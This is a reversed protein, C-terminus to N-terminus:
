FEGWQLSLNISKNPATNDADVIINSDKSGVLYYFGSASTDTDAVTLTVKTKSDGNVVSENALDYGVSDVNAHTDAVTIPATHLASIHGYGDQEISELSQVIEAVNTKGGSSVTKAPKDKKLEPTLTKHGVTVQLHETNGSGEVTPTVVISNNAATVKIGAANNGDSVSMGATTSNSFTITQDDGSPIIDFKVNSTKITGDADEQGNVILLDGIDVHVNQTTVTVNHASPLDFGSSVKFTDGNHYTKTGNDIDSQKITGRYTMADFQQLNQTLKDNIEDITYVPLVATGKEETKSGETIKQKKYHIYQKINDGVQIVPDITTNPDIGSREAGKDHLSINFGAPTAPKSAMSSVYPDEQMIKIGHTTDVVDIGSGKAGYIQVSGKETTNNEILAIKAAHDNSEGTVKTGAGHQLEYLAGDKAKLNITNGNVSLTINEGKLKISTDQPVNSLSDKLTDTITVTSSDSDYTATKTQTYQSNTDPNIQTWEPNDSADFGTCIALINGFKGNETANGSGGGPMVYYIDGVEVKTTPLLHINPVTRITKNLEVRNTGIGVYLKETDTTLYFVGDKAADIAPLNAALGRKFMLNTAM